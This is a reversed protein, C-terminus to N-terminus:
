HVRLAQETILIELQQFEALLAQKLQGIFRTSGRPRFDLATLIITRARRIV